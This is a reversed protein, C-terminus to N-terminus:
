WVRKHKHLFSLCKNVAEPPSTCLPVVLVWILLPPSWRVGSIMNSKKWQDDRLTIQKASWELCFSLSLMLDLLRPFVTSTISVLRRKVLSLWSIFQATLTFDGLSLLVPVIGYIICLIAASRYLAVVASAPCLLHCVAM